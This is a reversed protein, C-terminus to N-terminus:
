SVAAGPVEPLNLQKEYLEHFLRITGPGHGAYHNNAYGLVMVGRKKFVTCAKVWEQLEERRDVITEKWITTRAEIEKRDGLWRIYTFDTTIADATKFWKRPRPMWPHDILALAVRHKRLLEYLAPTLWSKNRIELAFRPEAPLTALFPALRALFAQADAFANRNFYPLQLLIVGRKEQLAETVKLFENWVEDGCELVREHTIQQPAKLAFVFNAPTRAYWNQVASLSPVGYYTSDIEVTNFQSAYHSLYEQTPMGAPYFTGAWGKATFASTGLRLAGADIRLPM